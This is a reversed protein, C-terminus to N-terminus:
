TGWIHPGDPEDERTYAVHDLQASPPIYNAILLSDTGKVLWTDAQAHYRTTCLTCHRNYMLTM